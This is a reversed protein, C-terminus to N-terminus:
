TQPKAHLSMSCPQITYVPNAGLRNCNWTAGALGASYTCWKLPYKFFRAIFSTVWTSGWALATLRSLLASFLAIYTIMLGSFKCPTNPGLSDHEKSDKIHKSEGHKHPQVRVTVHMCVSDTAARWCYVVPSILITLVKVQLPSHAM